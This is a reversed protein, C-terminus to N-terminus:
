GLLVGSFRSTGYLSLSPGAYVEVYDSASLSVNVSFTMGQYSGASGAEYFLTSGNLLLLIYVM